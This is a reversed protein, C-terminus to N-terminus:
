GLQHNLQNKGEAKVQYMLKDVQELMRDISDPLEQFTAAGVSFGVEFNNFKVAQVLRQHIRNLSIQAHQYDTEILILAFEDGGLRALIDTQRIEQKITTAILRLLQDGRNHGYRDNVLKFDDVDFYALTLPRQYRISRRNEECLIDLFYRRNYIQTLGDIRALKQEKKYAKKLEDLLYVIILFVSLRVLTNWFLLPFNLNPKATNEAIYWSIASAVSLLVGTNRNTYRTIISIPILYCISLSIDVTVSYDIFGIVIVCILGLVTYFISTM